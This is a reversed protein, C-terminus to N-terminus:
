FDGPAVQWCTLGISRWLNIVSTRDDLILFVNYRPAIHEQYIEEKIIFDKRFDSARRMHLEYPFSIHKQLFTETPKRYIDQRGSCFVIKFGEKHLSNLVMLVQENVMDQDCNHAEYPSRSPANPHRVEIEGNKKIPNFLSITGDLDCIVAKPLNTSNPQVTPAMVKEVQFTQSRSQYNRFKDGGSKKWFDRVIKEGVKGHGERNADRAIAEELDLYFPKEEVLCDINLSKVLKCVEDFNRRNFNTEDVIIDRGSLLGQKILYLKTSVVLKENSGSYHYNNLMIRLDDRNIRIVKEPNKSVEEKAWTSKGSAPIGTCLTVKLVKM